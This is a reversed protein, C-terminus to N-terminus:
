LVERIRVVQVKRGVKRQEAAVAEADARSLEPKLVCRVRMPIAEDAKDWVVAVYIERLPQKTPEKAPEGNEFTRIATDVTYKGVCWSGSKRGVWSFALMGDPLLGVYRVELHDAKFRIPENFTLM